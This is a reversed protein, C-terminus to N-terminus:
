RAKDNLFYKCYLMPVAVSCLKLYISNVSAFIQIELMMINPKPLHLTSLASYRLLSALRGKISLNEWLWNHLHMTVVNTWTIIYNVNLDGIFTCESFVCKFHMTTLVCESHVSVIHILKGICMIENHWCTEPAIM